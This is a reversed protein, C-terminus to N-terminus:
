GIKEESTSFYVRKHKPDNERETPIVLFVSTKPNPNGKWVPPQSSWVEVLLEGQTQQYYKEGDIFFAREAANQTLKIEEKTNPNARVIEFARQLEQMKEDSIEVVNRADLNSAGVKFNLKYPM